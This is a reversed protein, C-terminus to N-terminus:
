YGGSIIYISMITGTISLVASLIIDWRLERYIDSSSFPNGEESYKELQLMLRLAAIKALTKLGTYLSAALGFGAVLSIFM